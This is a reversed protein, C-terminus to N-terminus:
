FFVIIRSDKSGNKTHLILCAEREKEGKGRRWMKGRM